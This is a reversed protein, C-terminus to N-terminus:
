TAHTEYTKIQKNIKKRGPASKVTVDNYYKTQQSYRETLSIFTQCLVSCRVILACNVCGNVLPMCSEFCAYTDFASM